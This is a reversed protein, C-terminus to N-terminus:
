FSNSGNSDFYFYKKEFLLAYDLIEPYKKYDELLQLLYVM